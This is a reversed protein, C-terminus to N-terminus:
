PGALKDSLFAEVAADLEPGKEALVFASPLYGLAALKKMEIRGLRVKAISQGRRRRDRLRRQRERSPTSSM